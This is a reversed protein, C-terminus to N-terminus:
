LDSWNRDRAARARARRALQDLSINALRPYVPRPSTCANDYCEAMHTKSCRMWNIGPTLSTLAATVHHVPIGRLAAMFLPSPTM